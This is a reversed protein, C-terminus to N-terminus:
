WLRRVGYADFQEDAGVVAMGEQTAQVILLRDFPDRHHRPLTAVAMAHEKAVAMVAIGGDVARTQILEALPLDIELKGTELKIAMEWISAVSLYKDHRADEIRRRATASMRRDGAVFWLFAQTDLLLRM